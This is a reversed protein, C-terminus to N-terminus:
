VFYCYFYTSVANHLFQRLLVFLHSNYVQDLYLTSYVQCQYINRPSQNYDSFPTLSALVSLMVDQHLEM